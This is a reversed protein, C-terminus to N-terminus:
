IGKLAQSEFQWPVQEAWKDEWGVPLKQGESTQKRLSFGCREKFSYFWQRMRKIYLPSDLGGCMNPNMCAAHQIVFVHTCAQKKTACSNVWDAILEQIVQFM